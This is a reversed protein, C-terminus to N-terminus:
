GGLTGSTPADTLITSARGRRAMQEAISRKRAEDQAQLDPMPTAGPITPPKPALLKTVGASAAAGAATEGAKGLLGSGGAAGAAAYGAASAGGAATEAATLSIGGALDGFAADAVPVLASEAGLSGLFTGIAGISLGM